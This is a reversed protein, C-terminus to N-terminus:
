ALSGFVGTRESECITTRLIDQWAASVSLSSSLFFLVCLNCAAVPFAVLWPFIFDCLGLMARLVDCMQPWASSTSSLNIRFKKKCCTKLATFEIRLSEICLDKQYSAVAYCTGCIFMFLGFISYRENVDRQSVQLSVDKHDKPIKDIWM